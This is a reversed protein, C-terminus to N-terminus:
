VKFIADNIRIIFIIKFAKISSFNIILKTLLLLINVGMIVLIKPSIGLQAALTIIVSNYKFLIILKPLQRDPNNDPEPTPISIRNLCFLFRLSFMKIKINNSVIALIQPIINLM